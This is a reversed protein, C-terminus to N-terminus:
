IMAEENLVDENPIYFSDQSTEDETVQSTEVHEIDNNNFLEDLEQLATEDEIDMIYDEELEELKDLLVNEPRAVTGPSCM